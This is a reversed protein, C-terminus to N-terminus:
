DKHADLYFMNVNEPGEKTLTSSVLIDNLITEKICKAKETDASILILKGEMDHYVIKLHVPSSVVDLKVLFSIGM